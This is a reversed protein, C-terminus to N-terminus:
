LNSIIITQIIFTLIPVIIMIVMWILHKKYQSKLNNDNTVKEKNFTIVGIGIINLLVVILCEITNFIYVVAIYIGSGETQEGNSFTILLYTTFITTILYLSISIIKLILAFTKVGFFIYPIVLFLFLFLFLFLTASAMTDIIMYHIIIYSFLLLFEFFIELIILNKNAEKLKHNLLLFLNNFSIVNLTIISIFFIISSIADFKFILHIFYIIISISFLVYKNFNKM